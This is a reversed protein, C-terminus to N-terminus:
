CLMVSVHDVADIDAGRELLLSVVDEYGSRAAFSLATCRDKSSPLVFSPPLLM